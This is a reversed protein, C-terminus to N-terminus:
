KDEKKFDSKKNEHPFDKKVDTKEFLKKAKKELYPPINKGAKFVKRGAYLTKEEPVKM